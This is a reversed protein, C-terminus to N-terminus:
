CRNQSEAPTEINAGPAPTAPGKAHVESADPAVGSANSYGAQTTTAAGAQAQDQPSLVREQQYPVRCIPLHNLWADAQSKFEWLYRNCRKCKLKMRGDGFQGEVQFIRVAEAYQAETLNRVEKKPTNLEIYKQLFHAAKELDKLGGKKKWRFLYKTIQGQFYDLNFIHVVDWHQIEGGGYHDGGVQRDNAQM